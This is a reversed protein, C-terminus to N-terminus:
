RAMRELAKRHKAILKQTTTRVDDDNAYQRRTLILKSDRVNVEIETGVEWGLQKLIPQDFIVGASNGHKTVKKVLPM